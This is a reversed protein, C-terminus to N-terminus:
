RKVEYEPETPVYDSTLRHLHCRCNPHVWVEITNPDTIMLWPFLARLHNGQYVPYRTFQYCTNCQREDFVAHYVWRDHRSFFTFTHRYADPIRNKAKVVEIVTIPTM